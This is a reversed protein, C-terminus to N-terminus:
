ITRLYDKTYEHVEPAALAEAISWFEFAGHQDGPLHALNADFGLLMGLAIYHTSPSEGFVSDQYFHEFVGIPQAASYEIPMGLEANTLRLFAEQMSENKRVRGGPVFWYDQAPRNLRKGLLVKGFNVVILDISFLPTFDVVHQFDKEPLM